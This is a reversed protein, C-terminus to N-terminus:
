ETPAHPLDFVIAISSPMVPYEIRCRYVEFKEADWGAREFVYRGMEAYRPVDPTHLASPGKGLYAVSQYVPLRHRKHIVGDWLMEGTHEAHVFVSPKISDFTDEHILLDLIVVEVPTRVTVVSGSVRDSESYYRNLAQRTLHGEMCTVAARNGVDQSLIEGDVFGDLAEVARLEPLPKSCFDKLLALGHAGSVPELPERHLQVVSGDDNRAGSHSILLPASGRLQRLDIFGEVRMGDLMMPDDSPQMAVLKLQTKAQVGLIHRQGRFALRRHVLNLQEATEDSGLASVMSDFTARDGAHRAVM